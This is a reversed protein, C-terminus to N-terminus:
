SPSMLYELALLRSVGKRREGTTSFDEQHAKWLLLSLIVHWCIYFLLKWPFSLQCCPQLAHIWSSFGNWKCLCKKGVTEVERGVFCSTFPSKVPIKFLCSYQMLMRGSRCSINTLDPHVPWVWAWTRDRDMHEPCLWGKTGPYCGSFHAACEAHPVLGKMQQPESLPECAKKQHLEETDLKM